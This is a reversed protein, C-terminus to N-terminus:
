DPRARLSSSRLSVVARSLCSHHVFFYGEGTLDDRIAHTSSTHINARLDEPALTLSRDELGLLGPLVLGLPQGVDRNRPLLSPPRIVTVLVAEPELAGAELHRVVVLGEFGLQDIDGPAPGHDREVQRRVNSIAEVKLQAFARCHFASDAPDLRAPE